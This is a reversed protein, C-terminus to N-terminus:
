PTVARGFRGIVFHMAPDTRNSLRLAQASAVADLLNRKTTCNMSSTSFGRATSVPTPAKKM